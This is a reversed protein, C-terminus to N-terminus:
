RRQKFFAKLQNSATEALVGGRVEIHHNYFSADALQCQSELVGARPESAAYVCRKVRAHIMAGFCMTCPELTVYLTSDVLRYNSLKQGAQRLTVIEAHASPDNDIIQRNCAEAILEGGCVLVAGVPVEGLQEAINAQELAKRMWYEDSCEVDCM